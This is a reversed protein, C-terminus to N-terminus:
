AIQIVVIEIGHFVCFSTDVIEITLDLVIKLQTMQTALPLIYFAFTLGSRDPNVEECIRIFSKTRKFTM